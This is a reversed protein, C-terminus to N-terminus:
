LISNHEPKGTLFTTNALPGAWEDVVLLRQIPQVVQLYEYNSFPGTGPPGSMTAPPGAWKDINMLQQQQQM